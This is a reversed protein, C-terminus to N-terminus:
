EDREGKRKSAYRPVGKPVPRFPPREKSRTGSGEPVGSAPQGQANEVPDVHDHEPAGGIAITHARAVLRALARM